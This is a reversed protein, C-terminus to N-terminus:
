PIAQDAFEQIWSAQFCPEGNRRVIMRSGCSDSVKLLCCKLVVEIVGGGGGEGGACGRVGPIDLRV